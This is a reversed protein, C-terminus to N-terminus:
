VLPCMLSGEYITKLNAPVSTWAKDYKYEHDSFVKREINESGVKHREILAVARGFEEIAFELLAVAGSLIGNDALIEAGDLHEDCKRLALKIGEGIKVLPIKMTMPSPEKGKEKTRYPYNRLIVYAWALAFLLGGVVGVIFDINALVAALGFMMALYGIKFFSGATDFAKIANHKYGVSDEQVSKRFLDASLGLTLVSFAFAIFTTTLAFVTFV